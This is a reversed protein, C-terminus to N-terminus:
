EGPYFGRKMKFKEKRNHNYVIYGVYLLGAIVLWIGFFKAIMDDSLLLIVGGIILVGTIGTDKILPILNDVVM